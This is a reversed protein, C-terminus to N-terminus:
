KVRSADIMNLWNEATGKCNKHWIGDLDLQVEVTPGVDNPINAPAQPGPRVFDQPAAAIIGRMMDAAVEYAKALSQWDNTSESYRIAQRCDHLPPNPLSLLEIYSRKAAAQDGKRLAEETSARVIERRSETRREDEARELRRSYVRRGEDANAKASPEAMGLRVGALLALSALGVLTVGIVARRGLAAAFEKQQLVAIRHRVDCNRAMALGAAPFSAAGELAVRALTRCYGQVDGLYSASVADCVADCAARHASGIRWALPHFWLLTSVAQVGVNWGFDCAGVHALEHAIVGRLQERYGPEVMREPLVLVPRWLGYLFPVAYQQSSRVQVTRRCGLAAAIRGAEAVIEEPVARSGKLLGTLRVYAITLRVVLLAVGFGWIGVLATRWWLSPRFSEVPRAVEPRVATSAQHTAPIMEVPARGQNSQAPAVTSVAPVHEAVTQQRPSEPATAVPKPAQVHIELSPLGLSWIVMLLLGVVTGRWLLTRWRPNARALGVHILWAVALLLTVKTLLLAWPSVTSVQTLVNRLSEPLNM